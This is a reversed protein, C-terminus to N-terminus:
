VQRITAKNVMNAVRLSIGQYSYEGLMPSNEGIHAMEPCIEREGTLIPHHERVITENARRIDACDLVRFSKSNSRGHMCM